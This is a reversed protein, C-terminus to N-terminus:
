NSTGLFGESRCRTLHARYYIPVKVSQLVAGNKRVEFRISSTVNSCQFVTTNKLFTEKGDTLKVRYISGDQPDPTFLMFLQVKQFIIRLSLKQMSNEMMSIRGTIWLSTQKWRIPSYEFEKTTEGKEVACIYRISIIELSNM